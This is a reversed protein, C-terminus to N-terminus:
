MIRKFMKEIEFNTFKIITPRGHPCTFPNKCNGLNELLSSIEENNLSKNAKIAGKCSISKALSDRIKSVDLTKHDLLFNIIKEATDEIDDDNIWLPISRVCISTPGSEEVIFGIKEFQDMKENVFLLLDKTLEINIPILLPQNSGDVKGLHEYYYEYRIREAAAHQDIIYLGDQNQCLLYTGFFQGIYELYPLREKSPLMNIDITEKKPEEIKIEQTKVENYTAINDEIFHNVESIANDYAKEQYINQFLDDIQYKEESKIEPIIEKEVSFTKKISRTIFEKIEDESSFKIEMKSPHVNVDILLPDIELNIIAIPYRGIPLYTEYGDIVANILSNNRVYRGNVILSIYNRKAKNIFPQILYMKLNMGNQSSESFKVNRATELGYVNGILSIMDNFGNTQVLVKKNNTVKFSIQPNALILKDMIDTIAGLEISLSKIYKLRAPTNYFLKEVRMITGKNAPCSGEEILKGAKYKVQYGLGGQSTVMTTESVSAISPIAEGRFGLTNIRYLDQKTKLKSTAHRHFALLADDKDMGIGNDIIEIMKLGSEILNVEIKTAKADISNEVLEKVVSAPRDVVEGAAIMNALVDDLCKIVSM